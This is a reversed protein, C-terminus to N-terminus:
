STPERARMMRFPEVALLSERGRVKQANLEVRTRLEQAPPPPQQECVSFVTM